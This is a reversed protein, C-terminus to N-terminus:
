TCSHLKRSGSSSAFLFDTVIVENEQKQTRNNVSVCSFSTGGTTAGERSRVSGRTGPFSVEVMEESDVEGKEGEVSM